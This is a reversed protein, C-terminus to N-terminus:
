MQLAPARRFWTQIAPAGCFYWLALFTDCIACGVSSSPDFPVIPNGYLHHVVDWAVHCLWGIAVFRYESLGRFALLTMLACFAFELPGLGGGSIYIAGAGAIMLASFHRRAPEKLLSCLAIFAIAIMPAAVMEAISVSRDSPILM